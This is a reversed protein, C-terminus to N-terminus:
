GVKTNIEIYLDIGTSILKVNQAYIFFIVGAIKSQRMYVGRFRVARNSWDARGGRCWFAPLHEDGRMHPVRPEMSSHVGFLPCTTLCSKGKPRVYSVLLISNYTANHGFYKLLVCRM